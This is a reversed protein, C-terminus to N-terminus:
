ALRATGSHGIQALLSFGRRLPSLTQPVPLVAVNKPMIIIPLVQDPIDAVVLEDATGNQRGGGLLPVEGSRAIEIAVAGAIKQPVAVRTLIEDPCNAIILDGVTGTRRAGGLFPVERPYAIEVAIM